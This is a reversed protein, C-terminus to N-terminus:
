ESRKGIEMVEAAENKGEAEGGYLVKAIEVARQVIEPHLEEPLECETVATRGEISVTYDDTDLDILIIPQPKKVYRCMYTSHCLDCMGGDSSDEGDEVKRNTTRGILEVKNSEGQADFLLNYTLTTTGDATVGSMKLQGAWVKPIDLYMYGQKSLSGASAAASTDTLYENCYLLSYSTSSGASEGTNGVPVTIDICTKHAEEKIVPAPYSKKISDYGATSTELKYTLRVQIPKQTYNM